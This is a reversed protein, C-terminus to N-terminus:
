SRLVASTMWSACFLMMSPQRYARVPLFAPLRTWNEMGGVQPYPLSPLACAPILPVSVSTNTTSTWSVNLAFLEALPLSTACLSASRGLTPVLVSPM